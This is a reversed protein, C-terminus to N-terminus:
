FRMRILRFVLAVVWIGVAVGLVDIVPHSLLFDPLYEAIWTFFGTVASAM